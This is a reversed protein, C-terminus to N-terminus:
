GRRTHICSVVVTASIFRSEPLLISSAMLASAGPISIPVCYLYPKLIRKRKLGFIRKDPRCGDFLHAYSPQRKCRPGRSPSEGLWSQKQSGM